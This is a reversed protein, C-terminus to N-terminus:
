VLGLERRLIAEVRTQWGKGDAKLAALIDPSLRISVSKKPSSSRPRGRLTESERMQRAFAMSGEAQTIPKMGRAYTARLLMEDTLEPADEYEHPKIVHADLKAFDTGSTSNKGSM